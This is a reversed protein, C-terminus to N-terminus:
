KIIKVKSGSPNRKMLERITVCEGGSKKTKNVAEESFTLAAIIVKHELEGSGLVKGPVLIIDDNVTYRNIKSLNVSARNRRPKRLEDSVRKWLSCKESKSKKDLEIVLKWDEPNTPGTPKPM